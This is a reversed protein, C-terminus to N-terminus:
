QANQLNEKLGARLAKVAEDARGTEKLTDSLLLYAANRITPNSTENLVKRFVQIAKAKEGREKYIEQIKHMHLIASKEPNDSVQYVSDIIEFFSHMIELFSEMQRLDPEPPRALAEDPIVLSTILFLSAIASLHPKMFKM